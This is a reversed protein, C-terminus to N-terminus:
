DLHNDEEFGTMALLEAFYKDREQRTRLTILVFGNELSLPDDSAYKTLSVGYGHQNTHKMLKFM